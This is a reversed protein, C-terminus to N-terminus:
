IKSFSNNNTTKTPSGPHNSWLKKLLMKQHDDIPARGLFMDMKDDHRDAMACISYSINKQCNELDKIKQM